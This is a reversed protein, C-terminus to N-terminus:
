DKSQCYSIWRTTSAARAFPRSSTAKAVDASRYIADSVRRYIPLDYAGSIVLSATYIEIRHTYLESM